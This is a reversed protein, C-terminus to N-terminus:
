LFTSEVSENIELDFQALSELGILKKIVYAVINKKYCAYCISYLYRTVIGLSLPSLGDGYTQHTENGIISYGLNPYNNELNKM